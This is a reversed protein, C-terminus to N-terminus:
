NQFIMQWDQCLYNMVILPLFVENRDIRIGM